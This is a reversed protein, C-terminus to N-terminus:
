LIASRSPGANLSLQPFCVSGIQLQYTGDNTLDMCDFSKKTPNTGGSCLILASKISAFRQNFIISESRAM